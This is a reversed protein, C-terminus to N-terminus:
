WPIEVGAHWGGHSGGAPGIIPKAQAMKRRHRENAREAARPADRASLIWQRLGLGVVAVGLVQHPWQPGPDCSPNFLDLTCKDVLFTMVGAGITMVTAEYNVVGHWYEGAYIHGAGPILSGFILARRPNRYPHTEPPRGSDTMAKTATDTDQANLPSVWAAVILIGILAKMAVEM